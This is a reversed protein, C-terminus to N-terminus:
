SLLCRIKWLRYHSTVLYFPNPIHIKLLWGVLDAETTLYTITFRSASRNHIDHFHNYFCCYCLFAQMVFLLSYFKTGRNCRHLSISLSILLFYNLHYFHFCFYLTDWSSQTNRKKKITHLFPSAKERTTNWFCFLLNM